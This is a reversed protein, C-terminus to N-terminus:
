LKFKTQKAINNSKIEWKPDTKLFWKNISLKSLICLLRYVTKCNGHTKNVLITFTKMSHKLLSNKSIVKDYAMDKESSLVKYNKLLTKLFRFYSLYRRRKFPIVRPLIM